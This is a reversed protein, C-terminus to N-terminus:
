MNKRVILRSSMTREPPNEHAMNRYRTAKALYRDTEAENGLARSIQALAEYFEPEDKKLRIARNLVEQAENWQGDEYLLKAVFFHYYPNRRRYRDVRDSIDRAENARGEAEYYRALNTLASYNFANKELAQYYSFVGLRDNGARRMAAGMNNWTDSNGPSLALAQQLHQIALDPKGDVVAEAGLNNFYLSMAALDDIEESPRDGIAFAPLFDVVYTGDRLRGAAVIHEYRIMTEGAHDWTPKVSVTQYHADLGVYRGAAVFLNTMALCNGQGTRYTEMATRSSLADYSIGQEDKSFLFSRLARLKRKSGWGRDIRADLVAKLDDDLYLTVLEQLPQEDGLVEALLKAKEDASYRNSLSSACGTLALFLFLAVLRKMLM